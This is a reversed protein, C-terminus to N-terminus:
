LGFEDAPIGFEEASFKMIALLEHYAVIKGDIHRLEQPDAFGKRDQLERLNMHVTILVDRLFDEYRINM